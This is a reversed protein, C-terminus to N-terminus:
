FWDIQRGGEGGIGRREKCIEALESYLELGSSGDGISSKMVEWAGSGIVRFTLSVIKSVVFQLEWRRMM